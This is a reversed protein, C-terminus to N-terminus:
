SEILKEIEKRIEEKLRLGVLRNREQGNKFFILTPVSMVGYKQALVLNEDIDVKALKVQDQFEKDLQELVPALMKCPPCWTGFFDVVVPVKSELVEKQFNSNNLIIM